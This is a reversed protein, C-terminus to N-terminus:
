GKPIDLNYTLMRTIDCDCGVDECNTGKKNNTHDSGLMFFKFTFLFIKDTNEKILFKRKNRCNWCYTFPKDFELCKPLYLKWNVSMPLRYERGKYPKESTHTKHYIAFNSLFHFTKHYKRHLEILIKNNNEKSLSTTFDSSNQFEAHLQLHEGVWLYWKVEADQTCWWM